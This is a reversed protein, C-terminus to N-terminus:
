SHGASLLLFSVLHRSVLTLFSQTLVSMLAFLHTIAFYLVFWERCLNAVTQEKNKLEYM